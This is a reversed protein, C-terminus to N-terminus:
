TSLNQNPIIPVPSVIPNRPFHMGGQTPGVGYQSAMFEALRRQGDSMVAACDALAKTNNKLAQANEQITLTSQNLAIACNEAIRSMAKGNEVALDSLQEMRVHAKALRETMYRWILWGAYLLVLGLFMFLWRDSQASAHDLAPLVTPLPDPM